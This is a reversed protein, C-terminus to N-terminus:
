QKNKLAHLTCSEEQQVDIVDDKGGGRSLKEVPDGGEKAELEGHRVHAAEVVEEADRYGAVGGAHV